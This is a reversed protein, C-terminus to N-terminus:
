KRKNVSSPASSPTKLFNVPDQSYERIPSSPYAFHTGKTAALFKGFTFTSDKKKRASLTDSLVMLRYEPLEAATLPQLFTTPAKDPLHDNKNCIHPYVRWTTKEEGAPPRFVYFTPATGDHQRSLTTDTYLVLHGLVGRGRKSAVFGKANDGAIRVHVVFGRRQPECNTAYFAALNVRM